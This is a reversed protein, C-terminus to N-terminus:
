PPLHCDHLFSAVCQLNEVVIKELRTALNELDCGDQIPDLTRRCPGALMRIHAQTLEPTTDLRKKLGSGTSGLRDLVNKRKFVIGIPPALHVHRPRIRM